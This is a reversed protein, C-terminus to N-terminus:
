MKVERGIQRDEEEVKEVGGRWWKEGKVGYRVFEKEEDMEEDDENEKTVMRNVEYRWVREIAKKREEDMEKENECEKRRNDEKM